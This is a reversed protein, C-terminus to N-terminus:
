RPLNACGASVHRLDGDHYSDCFFRLTELSADTFGNAALFVMVLKWCVPFARLTPLCELFSSRVGVSIADPIKAESCYFIVFHLMIQGNTFRLEDSRAFARYFKEWFEKACLGSM